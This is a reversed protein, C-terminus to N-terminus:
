PIRVMCVDARFSAVSSAAVNPIAPQGELGAGVAVVVVVVVVVVVAGVIGVVGVIVGTFGDHVFQLAM